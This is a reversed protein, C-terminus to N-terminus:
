SDYDSSLATQLAANESILAVQITRELIREHEDGIRSKEFLGRLSIDCIRVLDEALMLAIITVSQIWQFNPLFVPRKGIKQGFIKSLTIQIYTPIRNNFMNARIQPSNTVPSTGM